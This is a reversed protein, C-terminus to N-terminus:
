LNSLNSRFIESPRHEGAVQGIKLCNLLNRARITQNQTSERGGWMRPAAIALSSGLRKSGEDDSAVDALKLRVACKSSLDGAYRYWAPDVGLRIVVM